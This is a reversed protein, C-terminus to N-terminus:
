AATQRRAMRAECQRRADASRHEHPCRPIPELLRRVIQRRLAEWMPHHGACATGLNDLDYPEGGDAVAVVHHVHLTGSCRGGLLRSVTCRGADRRLALERVSRWRDTHYIPEM